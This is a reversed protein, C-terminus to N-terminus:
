TFATVEAAVIDVIDPDCIDQIDIGNQKEEVGQTFFEEFIADIWKLAVPVPRLLNSIDSLIM